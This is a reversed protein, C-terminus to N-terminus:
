KREGFGLRELKERLVRRAEAMRWKVTGLPLRLM